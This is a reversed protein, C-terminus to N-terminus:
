VVSQCFSTNQVCVFVGICPHVSLCASEIIGGFVNAKHPYLLLSLLCLLNPWVVKFIEELNLQNGASGLGDARVKVEISRMVEYDVADVLQVTLGLIAFDVETNSEVLFTYSQHLFLIFNMVESKVFSLINSQKLNFASAFM